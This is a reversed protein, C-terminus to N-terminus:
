GNHDGMASRATTIANLLIKEPSGPVFEGGLREWKSAFDEAARVVPLLVLLARAFKDTVIQGATETDLWERALKEIEDITV